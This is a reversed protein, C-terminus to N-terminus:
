SSSRTLTSRCSNLPRTQKSLPLLARINALRSPLLPPRYCPLVTALRSSPLALRQCPLVSAVFSRMFPLFLPPSKGADAEAGRIWVTKHGRGSDFVWLRQSGGRRHAGRWEWHRRGHGGHCVGLRRGQCHARDRREVGACGGQRRRSEGRRRVGQYGQAWHETYEEGFGQDAGSRRYQDGM